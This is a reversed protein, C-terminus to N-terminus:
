SKESNTTKRRILLKSSRIEGSTNRLVERTQLNKREQKHLKDNFESLYDQLESEKKIQNDVIRRLSMIRRRLQTNEKHIENNNLTNIMEDKSILKYAKRLKKYTEREDNYKQLEVKIEQELYALKNIYQQYELQLTNKGYTGASKGQLRKM